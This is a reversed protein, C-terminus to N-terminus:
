VNDHNLAAAAKAEQIFWTKDTENKVLLPLLFKLAVFRKFKIDEAKYM